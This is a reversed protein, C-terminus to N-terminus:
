RSSCVMRRGSRIRCGARSAQRGVWGRPDPHGNSDVPISGSPGAQRFAIQTSDPSWAPSDDDVKNRTIQVLNSGDTDVVFIEASGNVSDAPTGVFALRRGDPSWTLQEFHTLSPDALLVAEGSTGDPGVTYIAEGSGDGADGVFAILGNRVPALWPEGERSAAAVWGEITGLQVRFWPYGSAEVPGELILLRQGPYIKTKFIASDAGTGPLTRIVLRGDSVMAAIDGAALRSATGPSASAPATEAPATAQAESPSPAATVTPQATASQAPSAPASAQATATQVPTESPTPSPTPSPAPSAQAAATQIPASTLPSPPPLFDLGRNGVIVATGGLVVLLSLSVAVLSRMGPTRRSGRLAAGIVVDRVRSPTGIDSPRRLITATARMATAQRRCLHCTELAADLQSREAPDLEFDIAAAALRLIEAHDHM